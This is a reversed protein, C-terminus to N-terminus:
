EVGERIVKHLEWRLPFEVARYVLLAKRRTTEPIMFIETGARFVYPYSMHFDERIIPEWPGFKGDGLYRTVGIVGRRLIYDYLEAFIYTQGQHTFVMPDAAWFRFSNPIVTFPTIQDELISGQPKLRFAVNWSEAYLPTDTLPM